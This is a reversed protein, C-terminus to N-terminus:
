TYTTSFRLTGPTKLAKKMVLKKKRSAVNLSDLLLATAEPDRLTYRDRDVRHLWPEPQDDDSWAGLADMATTFKVSPGRTLRRMTGEALDVGRVGHRGKM